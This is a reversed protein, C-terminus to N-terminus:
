RGEKTRRCWARWLGRLAQETGRMFCEGDCLSSAAVRDRMAVRLASLKEPHKAVSVAMAVYGDKSHTVWESLGAASLVSLGSRELTSTGTLTLVPVGMWLADCTTTGGNYPFSDLAVDVEHYLAYYDRAGVRGRFELREPGVGRWAFRETVRRRTDGEPVGVFLFRTAPAQAGIDAWADIPEPGVKAFNNFSGYTVVGQTAFPGARVEPASRPPTFCWMSGPLRVLKETYWQEAEGIPDIFRDTLRYEIAAVGTSAGYGLYTLQVPAPCRAFARLRGGRTHGNLDVLVDIDDDRVMSSLAEDDLRDVDRWEDAQERFRRTADDNRGSAHYCTVRWRARDRHELLPGIFPAASTRWFDASVYGIRLRREPDPDNAHETRALSRPAFREGWLVHRALLAARDHRRYQEHFLRASASRAHEPLLTTLREYCEIAKDPDGCERHVIALEDVIGPHRAAHEILGELHGRAADPNGTERLLRALECGIAPDHPNAASAAQLVALADGPRGEARLLQAALLAIERSRPEVDLARCLHELARTRDGLRHYLVGLGSHAAYNEPDHALARRFAVGAHETQGQKLLQAAEACANEAARTESADTRGGFLDSM